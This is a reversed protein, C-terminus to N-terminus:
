KNDLWEGIEIDLESLPTTNLRTWEAKIEDMRETFNEVSRCSLDNLSDYKVYERCLSSRIQSDSLDRDLIKEEKDEKKIYIRDGKTKLIVEFDWKDTHGYLSEEAKVNWISHEQSEQSILKIEVPVGLELQICGQRVYARSLNNM